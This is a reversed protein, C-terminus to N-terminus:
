DEIFKRLSPIVFRLAEVNLLSDHDVPVPIIKLKESDYFIEYGGAEKSMFYDDLKDSIDTTYGKSQLTSKFYIVDGDYYSPEYIYQINSSSAVYSIMDDIYDHKSDLLGKKIFQRVYLLQNEIILSRLLLDEIYYSELIILKDVIDNQKKLQVAIEHAISGGFCYGGIYYPGEPQISKIIEIYKAAYEEISLLQNDKHNRNYPEIVIFSYEDKLKEALYYFYESGFNVTHVFFLKKKDPHNSFIHVDDSYDNHIFSFIGEINMMFSNGFKEM